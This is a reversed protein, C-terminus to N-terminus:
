EQPSRTLVFQVKEPVIYNNIYTEWFYRLSFASGGLQSSRKVSTDGVKHLSRNNM